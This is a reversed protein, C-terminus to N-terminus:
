KRHTVMLKHIELITKQIDYNDRVFQQGQQSFKRQLEEQTALETIAEALAVEDEQEILLGTERDMILDPIGAIATSIVPLGLSAAEIIVTPLGDIDGICERSPVLLMTAQLYHKEVQDYTLAGLLHIQDGLNLMDIQNKLSELEIGQGIIDCQFDVGTKKLIACARILVDFGKKPVLRGVAILQLTNPQQKENLPHSKLEVGTRIFHVGQDKGRLKKLIEFTEMTTAICFSANTAIREILELPFLYMRTYATISYPIGTLESLWYACVIEHHLFSARIHDYQERNKMIIYAIGFTSLLLYFLQLKLKLTTKITLFDKIIKVSQKRKNILANFFGLMWLLPNFMIPSMSINPDGFSFNNLKEPLYLRFVKIKWNQLSLHKIERAIFTESLTPFKFCIYLCNMKTLNRTRKENNITSFVMFIM